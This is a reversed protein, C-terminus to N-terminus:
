GQRINENAEACQCLACQADSVCSTHGGCTREVATWANTTHELRRALPLTCSAAAARHVEYAAHGTGPLVVIPLQLDHGFTSIGDCYRCTTAGQCQTEVYAAHGTSSCVPSLIAM